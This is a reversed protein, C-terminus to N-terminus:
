IALDARVRLFVQRYIRSVARGATGLPSTAPPPTANFLGPSSMTAVDNDIAWTAQSTVDQHRPISTRPPQSTSSRPIPLPRLSGPSAFTSTTPTITLSVVKQDHACSPLSLVAGVAVLAGLALGIYSRKM